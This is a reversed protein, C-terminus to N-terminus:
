TMKAQRESRQFARLARRRSRRRRALAEQDLGQEWGAYCCQQPAAKGNPATAGCHVPKGNAPAGKLSAGAPGM